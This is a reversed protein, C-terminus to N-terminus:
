RLWDFNAVLHDVWARVKPAIHKAAPYVVWLSNQNVPTGLHLEILSGAEIEEICLFRPIRGIGLGNLVAQKVGGLHDFGAVCNLPVDMQGFDGELHWIPNRELRPHVITDHESLDEPRKPEGRRELYEPSAVITFDSYGLRRAMLGVEELQRAARLAVDFGEGTLNIYRNTLSIDMRVKPYKKIFSAVLPGVMPSMETPATFRLLGHPENNMQSVANEAEEWQTAIVKGHQALIQGAETLHLKRTTRQLLPVRLQDELKAVRRSVTSKPLGLEQAAKTFSGAEVVKTFILLDNLDREMTGEM